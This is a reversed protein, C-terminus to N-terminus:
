KNNYENILDIVVQKPQHKRDFLLPYDTRGPIPWGNKWSDGDAVGWATVRTIKDSHKIFLEFFDKMRKNWQDSIEQPLGEVYPNMEKSYEATDTLEAGLRKHPSKLVSLDLETIMVDVGENAFAIISAEKNELSPFDLSLHGQMGVGDIKVGKEKLMQVLKVAGERKEPISLSYDNYYLEANPDAQQAFEFVMPIYEEGIIRLFPTNRLTGDDNLAENLVDWGKIKGKYRGAVAFIHDKLRTILEDRDVEKGNDDVTFWKPLQSHWVLTHGIVEMNNAEAFEIMKDTEDFYFEGKKPQIKEAKMCNEAVISNFHQKTVEIGQTDIGFNQAENFATGITFKDALADKLSFQEENKASGGCSAFLMMCFAILASTVFTRKM